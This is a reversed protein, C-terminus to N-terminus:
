RCDTSARPAPPLYPLRERRRVLYVYRSRRERPLVAAGCGALGLRLITTRPAKSERPRRWPSVTDGHFPCWLADPNGPPFTPPPPLPYSPRGHPSHLPLRGSSHRRRRRSGGRARPGFPRSDVTSLSPGPSEMVALMTRPCVRGLDAFHGVLARHAKEEGLVDDRGPRTLLTPPKGVSRASHRILFLRPCRRREQNSGGNPATPGGRALALFVDACAQDLAPSIPGLLTRCSYFISIHTPMGARGRRRRLGEKEGDCLGLRLAPHLGDPHIPSNLVNATAMCFALWFFFGGYRLTPALLLMRVDRNMCGTTLPVGRGGSRRGVHPRACSVVPSFCLPGRRQSFVGTM